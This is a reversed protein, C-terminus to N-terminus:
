VMFPVEPQENVLSDLTKSIKFLKAREDRRIWHAVKNRSLKQKEWYNSLAEEVVKDCHVEPPGNLAVMAEHELREQTLPRRSNNHHEIVSVWSEVVSELGM